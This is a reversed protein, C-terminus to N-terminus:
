QKTISEGSLGSTVTYSVTSILAGAIAGGVVAGAFASIAVTGLPDTSNIPNGQCYAFLNFSLLSDNAGLYDIDDANLFRGIAPNYYRSQLYYLGTEPDYIYGRYRLPNHQGLTDALTGTTSLPKGWTDYVYQVVPNGSGDLIAVVDGQLNTVYYYKTGNYTVTTPKSGEYTFYLLNSGVSM